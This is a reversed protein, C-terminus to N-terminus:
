KIWKLIKAEDRKGDHSAKKPYGFVLSAVLRHDSPIAAESMFEPSYQLPSAFGVWCSGIGMSWAALMMNEAAVSGDEVPTQCFPSALVMVLMPANHFINREPDSLMRIMRNMGEIKDMPAKEIRKKLM